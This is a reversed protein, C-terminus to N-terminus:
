PPNDAVVFGKGEANTNMWDSFKDLDTKTLAGTLGQADWNAPDDGLKGYIYRCLTTADCKDGAKVNAGNPQFAKSGMGFTITLYAGGPDTEFSWLHLVRILVPSNEGSGFLKFKGVAAKDAFTKKLEDTFTKLLKIQKKQSLDAPYQDWKDAAFAAGSTHDAKCKYCNGGQSVYQGATYATTAAWAAVATWEAPAFDKNKHDAKCIHFNGGNKVIDGVFYAGKKAWDMVNEFKALIKTTVTLIGKYPGGRLIRAYEDDGLKYLHLDCHGHNGLSYNNAAISPVYINRDAEPRHYKLKPKGTFEYAVRFRKQTLFEPLKDAGGVKAMDNLWNARLWFYRVRPEARNEFMIAGTDMEYPMGYYEQQDKQEANFNEYGWLDDSLTKDDDGTECLNGSATLYSDFLGFASHGLEHAFACKPHANRGEFTTIAPLTGVGDGWSEGEDAAGGIRMTMETSSAESGDNNDRVKVECIHKGGTDTFNGPSTQVGKAEFLCFHKVRVETKDDNEEFYYDKDNWRQMALKLGDKRFTAVDANTAGGGSKRRFRGSWYTVIAGYVTAVDVDCYHLYIFRSTTEYGIYASNVAPAGTVVTKKGSVDTDEFKAARAGLVEKKSFDATDTRKDFVDYFDSCFVIARPNIPVDVILNRHVDTAAEKKFTGNTWYVADANEKYVVVNYKKDKRSLTLITFRSDKSLAIDGNAPGDGKNKTKDKIAQSAANVLVIDDLCFTLRKAKDYADELLTEDAAKLEDFCKNDTATPFRTFYNKSKWKKPLDYFQPRDKTPKRRADNAPIIVIKRATESTSHVFANERGFEFMMKNNLKPLAVGVATKTIIWAVAQCTKAADTMEVMWNGIADHTGAVPNVADGTANSERCSKLVVPPISVTKKNDDEIERFKRDYFEFRVYQLKPALTMTAPTTATGIGDSPIDIQGNTPIVVGTVEWESQALSWTKPLAFFQKGAENLAHLADDNPDLVLEPAAKGKEHVLYRVKDSDLKLTFKKKKDDPIEVKFTGADDLIKIDQKSGDDFTVEFPFDKPFHRVTADPDKYKLKLHLVLRAWVVHEDPRKTMDLVHSEEGDDAELKYKDQGGADLAVKVKYTDERLRTFTVDGGGPTTKETAAPVNGDKGAAITVKANGIGASDHRRKVIVKLSTLPDLVFSYFENEGAAIDKSVGVVTEGIPRAWSDAVTELSLSAVHKGPKLNEAVRFGNVDTDAPAGDVRASVGQIAQGTRSDTVHVTAICPWECPAVGKVVKPTATHLCKM